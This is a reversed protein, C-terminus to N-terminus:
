PAPRSPLMRVLVTDKRIFHHFLAAGVHVLVLPWGLWKGTFRHVAEMPKEVEHWTLGSLASVWAFLATDKFAPIVFLGFDTPDYTNMYGSLPMVILLAYLAWHAIGAAANEARSQGLPRPVSGFLRWLLRPLVLFGITVGLVWHINLIPVVREGAPALGWLPPKISTEPDVIWIVYYAIVYAAIFAAATAWHFLMSVGGYADISNKWRM